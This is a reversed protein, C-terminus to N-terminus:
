RCRTPRLFHMTPSNAPALISVLHIKEDRGCMCCVLHDAPARVRADFAECQRLAQVSDFGGMAFLSSGAAAVAHGGRKSGM